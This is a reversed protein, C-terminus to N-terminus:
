PISCTPCMPVTLHGHARRSSRAGACSSRGTPPLPIPEASVAEFFRKLAGSAVGVAEPASRALPMPAKAEPLTLKQLRYGYAPLNGVDHKLLKLMMDISRMQIALDL